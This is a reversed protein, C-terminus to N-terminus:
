VVDVLFPRWRAWGAVPVPAEAPALAPNLAARLVVYVLFALGMLLGPLIGGILLEAISIGALSGLLVALASPPILMAIGGVAMIAGMALRPDYGRKLKEPLLVSGLLATNAIS